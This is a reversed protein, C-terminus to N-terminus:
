TKIIYQVVRYAPTNSGSTDSVSNTSGSVNVTAGSTPNGTEGSLSVLNTSAGGTNASSPGDTNTKITSHGHAAVPGETFHPHTDSSYYSRSSDASPTMQHLHYTFFGGDVDGDAGGANGIKQLTANSQHFPLTYFNLPQVPTGVPAIVQAVRNGSITVETGDNNAIKHYHPGIRLRFNHEHYHVMGHTHNNMSHSHTHTANVQGSGTGNAVSHKHTPMNGSAAVTHDHSPISHTHGINSSSGSVSTGGTAGVTAGEGGSAKGLPFRQRMDPLGFTTGGDGYTTGIAAFLDAYTTKSVFSGDCVLWGTPAAGQGAFMTMVGAPVTNGNVQTQLTQLDIGDVTGGVTINGGVNLDNLTDVDEIYLNRFRHTSAGLDVINTPGPSTKRLVYEGTGANETLFALRDTSGISWIHNKDLACDYITHDSSSVKILDIDATDGFNRGRLAEDNDLRIKAGTVANNIINNTNVSNDDLKANTVSGNAIQITGVSGPPIATIQGDSLSARRSVTSFGLHLIKIKANDAPAVHFRLLDYLPPNSTLTDILEYEGTTGALPDDGDVIVGDVTVLLTRANVAKQSLPFDTEGSTTDVAQEWRDAVFNRLNLSLKDPTVTNNTPAFNYTASGRHVVYCMDEEALIESLTILRNLDPGTGAIIYDIEPELYEWPGDASVSLTVPAGPLEDALNTGIEFTVKLKPSAADDYVLSDVRYYTASTNDNSTSGEVKILDGSQIDQLAAIVSNDDTYLWENTGDFGIREDDRVIKTFHHKKRFVAVNLEYGGPVEQSLEFTQKIGDPILDDRTNDPFILKPDANGIYSSM